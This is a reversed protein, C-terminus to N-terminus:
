YRYLCSRSIIRWHSLPQTVLIRKDLLTLVQIKKCKKVVNIIGADTINDQGSKEDKKYCGRLNLKEIYPNNSALTTLVDDNVTKFSRKLHVIRLNHCRQSLYLVSTTTIKECGRLDVEVIDPCNNTIAM